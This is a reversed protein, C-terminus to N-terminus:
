EDKEVSFDYVKRNSAEVQRVARVPLGILNGALPIATRRGQARKTTMLWHTVAAANEHDYWVLELALLADRGSVSVQYSTHRQIIPKGNILRIGTPKDTPEHGYLGASIGHALLLYMLQNALTESSTSFSLRKAGSDLTGDGLFYGRLFALQLRADVNFVLDPIHKRTSDTADFKFLLRFAASVVSNLVRLEAVRDKSTYLKPELGFV